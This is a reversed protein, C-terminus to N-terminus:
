PSGVPPDSHHLWVDVVTKPLQKPGVRGLRLLGPPAQPDADGTRYKEAAQESRDAERDDHQRQRERDHHEDGGGRPHTRQATVSLLQRRESASRCHKRLSCESPRM